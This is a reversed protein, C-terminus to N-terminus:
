DDLSLTLLARIAELQVDPINPMRLAVGFEELSTGHRSLLARFAELRMEQGADPIVLMWLAKGFERLPADPESMLTKSLDGIVRKFQESSNRRRKKSVSKGMCLKCQCANERLKEVLEPRYLRLWGEVRSIPYLLSHRQEGRPRLKCPLPPMRDDGQRWLFITM